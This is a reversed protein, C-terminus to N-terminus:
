LSNCGSQCYTNHEFEGCVPLTGPDNSTRHAVAPPPLPFLGHVQARQTDAGLSCLHDYCM